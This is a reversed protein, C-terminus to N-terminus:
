EILEFFSDFSKGISGLRFAQGDQVIAIKDEAAMM